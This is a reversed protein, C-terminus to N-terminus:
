VVTVGKIEIDTVDTTLLEIPKLENEVGKVPEFNRLAYLHYLM